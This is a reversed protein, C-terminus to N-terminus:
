FRDVLTLPICVAHEDVNILEGEELSTTEKNATGFEIHKLQEDRLVIQIWRIIDGHPLILEHSYTGQIQGLVESSGCLHFLQLGTCRGAESYLRIKQVGSLRACSEFFHASEEEYPLGLAPMRLIPQINPCDTGRSGDM